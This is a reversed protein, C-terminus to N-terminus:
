AKLSKLLKPLYAALVGALEIGEELKIDQVEVPVKNIDEYAKVLLANFAADNKLKDYLAAADDAGIGDKLRTVLFVSLELVAILVERVNEIGIEEAMPAQDEM